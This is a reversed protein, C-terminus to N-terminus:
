TTMCSIDLCQKCDLIDFCGEAADSLGTVLAQFMLSKRQLRLYTLIQKQHSRWLRKISQGREWHLFACAIRLPSAVLFGTRLGGLLEHSFVLPPEPCVSIRVRACAHMASNVAM